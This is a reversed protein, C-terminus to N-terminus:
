QLAAAAIIEAPGDAQIIVAARDPGAAPAALELAETARWDAVHEWSTVINRYTLEHGANEGREIDVVAKDRYRVLQVRYSRDSPPVAVARIVIRDGVRTLTLRVTRPQDAHARVAAAVADPDNGVLRDVGGVVMQPTYIMRDGAARAYAKQRETFSKNAFQDKWGLYDWYDVHLSLAIVRPDTALQLLLADATPCSSCGQSTYLEVVVAGGSEPGVDATQAAVITASGTASLALMAAGARLARTAKVIQRM